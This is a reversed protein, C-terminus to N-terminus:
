RLLRQERGPLGSPSGIMWNATPYGTLQQNRQPLGLPFRNNVREISVCNMGGFKSSRLDSKM